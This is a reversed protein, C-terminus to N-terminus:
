LGGGGGGGRGGSLSLLALGLFYLGICGRELRIFGFVVEYWM